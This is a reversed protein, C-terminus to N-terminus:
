HINYLAKSACNIVYTGMSKLWDGIKELGGAAEIFNNIGSSLEKIRLSLFKIVRDVINKAMSLTIGFPATTEKKLDVEIIASRELEEGYVVKQM